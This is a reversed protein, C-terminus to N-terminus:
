YNSWSDRKKWRIRTVIIGLLFAVLSVSAGRIFWDMATSDKYNTNEDVLQRKDTELENIRNKLTDNQQIILLTDHTAAKLDDLENETQNLKSRLMSIENADNNIVGINEDVEQKLSRITSNLTETQTKLATYRDRGSALNDLFRTLIYGQKGKETEVLSYKTESDQKIVNVKAGSKLMSIISNSTSSGSRLTVEFQDTVYRTQALSVSSIIISSLIITTKIAFSKFMSKNNFKKFYKLTIVVGQIDM